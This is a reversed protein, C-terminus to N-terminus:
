KKRRFLLWLILILLLLLFLWFLWFPIGHEEFWKKIKDIIGGGKGADQLKGTFITQDGLVLSTPEDINGKFTITYRGDQHDVVNAIQINPNTVAWLTGMAPGIYKKYTTIPRITMVLQGNQNTISINSNPMDVGAFSVYFSESMIRQIKGASSDTGTVRILLKYTGSVTLGNFTGTYNGDSTHTLPVVNESRKFLARFSSDNNWLNDFKQRGPSGADPANSVDVNNNNVALEHGLDEGPRLVIAEVTANQIPRAVWALKLSIPLPQNVRPNGGGFSRTMDLRHDDAIVSLNVSSFKTISDSISVKWEGKPNVPPQGNPPTVFDLALLLVNSFGVGLTPRAYALMNTGDKEVRIRAITQVLEPTEFNRGFEFKLLLKDVRDNLPFTQLTVQSGNNPVSTRSRAVLQPSMGALLATFTNEFEDGLDDGKETHYYVGGTHNAMNQLLSSQAGTGEFGITYIKINKPAGKGPIGTPNDTFGQGNPTIQVPNQEGDTFFVIVPTANSSVGALKAQADKIALGMGTTGNIPDKGTFDADMEGQLAPTVKKPTNGCCTSTPTPTGEFYVIRVQDNARNLLGGYELAFSLAAKKLANWRTVGVSAPEKMSGSRDLVLVVDLNKSILVEVKGTKSKSGDATTLLVDFEFKGATTATGTLTAMAGQPIADNETANNPLKFSLGAFTLEKTFGTAPVKTINGGYVASILWFVNQGANQDTITANANAGVDLKITITQTNAGDLDIQHQAFLQTSIFTAMLGMCMMLALKFRSRVKTNM